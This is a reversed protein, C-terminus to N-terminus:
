QQNEIREQTHKHKHAPFYGILDRQSITVHNLLPLTQDSEVTTGMGRCM